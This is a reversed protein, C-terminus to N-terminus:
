GVSVHTFECVLCVLGNILFHVSAFAVVLRNLRGSFNEFPHEM